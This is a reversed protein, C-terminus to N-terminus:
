QLESGHWCFIASSSVMVVGRARGRTLLLRSLLDEVKNQLLDVRRLDVHVRRRFLFSDDLSLRAPASFSTLSTSHHAEEVSTFLPSDLLAGINHIPSIGGWVQLMM